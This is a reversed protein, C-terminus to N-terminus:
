VLGFPAQALITAPFICRNSVRYIHYMSVCASMCIGFRSYVFVGERAFSPLQRESEEYINDGECASGEIDREEFQSQANRDRTADSGQLGRTGKERLSSSYSLTPRISSISLSSSTSLYSRALAQRILKHRHRNGGSVERESDKIREDTSSAIMDIGIKFSTVPASTSITSYTSIASSLTSIKAPNKKALKAGGAQGIKGQLKASNRQVESVEGPSESLEPQATCGLSRAVETKWRKVAARQRPEAAEESGTDAATRPREGFECADGESIDGM